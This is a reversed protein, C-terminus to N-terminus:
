GKGLESARLFCWVRHGRANGHVRGHGSYVVGSGTAGARRGDSWPGAQEQRRGAGQLLHAPVFGQNYPAWLQFEPLLEADVHEPGAMGAFVKSLASVQLGPASPPAVARRHPETGFTVKTV